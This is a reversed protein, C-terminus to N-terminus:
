PQLTILNYPKSTIYVLHGNGHWTHEDLQRIEVDDNKFITKEKFNSQGFVSTAMMLCALIFLQKM